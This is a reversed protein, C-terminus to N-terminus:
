ISIPNPTRDTTDKHMIIKLDMTVCGAVGSLENCCYHLAFVFWKTASHSIINGRRIKVDRDDHMVFKLKLGLELICM